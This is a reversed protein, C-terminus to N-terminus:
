ELKKKRRRERKEGRQSLTTPIGPAPSKKLARPPGDVSEGHVADADAAAAPAAIVSFTM